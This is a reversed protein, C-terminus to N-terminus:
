SSTVNKIMVIWILVVQLNEESQMRNLETYTIQLQAQNFTFIHKYVNNKQM